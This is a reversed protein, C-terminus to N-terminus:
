LTNWQAVSHGMRRTTEFLLARVTVGDPANNQLLIFLHIFVDAICGQAIFFVKNGPPPSFTYTLLVRDFYLSSPMLM